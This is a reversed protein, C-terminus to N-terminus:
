ATQCLPSHLFKEIWEGLTRLEELCVTHHMNHYIHRLSVEDSIDGRVGLFQAVDMAFSDDTFTGTVVISDSMPSFTSIKYDM